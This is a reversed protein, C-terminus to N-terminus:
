FIWSLEAGEEVGFYVGFGYFFQCFVKDFHLTLCVVAEAVLVVDELFAPWVLFFVFGLLGAFANEEDGAGFLFGV